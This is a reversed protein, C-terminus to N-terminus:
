YHGKSEEWIEQDSIHPQSTFMQLPLTAAIDWEGVPIEIFRSQVQHFLYRKICPTARYAMHMAKLLPYSLRLRTHEDNLSGTAFRALQQLLILRDKPPIYHLNLGLFGDHYRMLPIVLPFRDWYPLTEHGKASYFFFYFRGIMTKQRQANRDKIIQMRDKPTTRLTNMKSLLWARGPNRTPDIGKKVLEEKIRTLLTTM